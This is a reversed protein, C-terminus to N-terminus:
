SGQDRRWLPENVLGELETRQGELQILLRAVNDDVAGLRLCQRTRGNRARPM